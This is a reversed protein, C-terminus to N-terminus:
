DKMSVIFNHTGSLFDNFWDKLMDDYNDYHAVPHGLLKLGKLPDYTTYQTEYVTYFPNAIFQATM